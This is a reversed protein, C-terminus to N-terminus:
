EFVDNNNNGVHVSENYNFLLLMLSKANNNTDTEPGRGKGLALASQLYSEYHVLSATRLECAKPASSSDLTTKKEKKGKRTSVQSDNSNTRIGQVWIAKDGKNWEQGERM